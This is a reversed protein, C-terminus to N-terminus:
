QCKRIERRPRQWYTTLAREYESFEPAPVLATKPKLAAAILYILEISGNGVLVNEESIDWYEAISKTLDRAKQDPYRLITDLNDKILKKIYRPLGLPNINASFDILQERRKKEIGYIDGGHLFNLKPM